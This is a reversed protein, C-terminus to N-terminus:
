CGSWSHLSFVQQSSFVPTTMFGFAQLVAMLSFVIGTAGSAAVSIKSVFFTDATNYITTIMMSIITPVALTLILKSVPTETMRKYKAEENTM